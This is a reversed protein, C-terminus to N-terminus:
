ILNLKVIQFEQIDEDDKFEELLFNFADDTTNFIKWHFKTMGTWDEIIYKDTKM